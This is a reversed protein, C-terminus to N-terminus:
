PITVADLGDLRYRDLDVRGEIGPVAGDSTYQWFTWGHGDWNGAPVTPSSATTWHAIWLLEYGNAAFWATNGLKSSWFAPSVYIMARQGTRQYLQELFDRTWARLEAPELSGTKELDLVPRLDGSALFLHDAFHDAQAVASGPTADPRAFHYAGVTLGAAKAQAYNAAYYSDVFDTDDTAKLFAFRRGTDAVTPWDIAGQWHSVDIGEIYGSDIPSPTRSPTPTPSPSATPAPPPTPTPTPTPAPAPAPAARFLSTAGYVYAIGYLSKVSRGNISTIRYWTRGAASRGACRTAWRGGTVKATAVVRVGERIRRKISASTSPRARLNVGDCRAALTTAALAPAPVSSLVLSLALLAGLCAALRHATPRPVPLSM